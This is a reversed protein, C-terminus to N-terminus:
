IIENIKDKMYDKEYSDILPQIDINNDSLLRALRRVLGQEYYYMNKWSESQFSIEKLKEKYSDIMEIAQPLTYKHQKGDFTKTENLLTKYENLDKEHKHKWHIYNYYFKDVLNLVSIDIKEKHLKPAKKIKLCGM